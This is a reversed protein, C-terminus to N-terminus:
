SITNLVCLLLDCISDLTCNQRELLKAITKLTTAEDQKDIAEYRGALYESQMAAYEEDTVTGAARGDEYTITIGNLPDGIDDFCDEDICDKCDEDFCVDDFRDECDEDIAPDSMVAKLQNELWNIYNQRSSNNSWISEKNM